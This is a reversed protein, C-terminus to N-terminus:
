ARVVPLPVVTVMKCVILELRPAPCLSNVLERRQKEEGGCDATGGWLEDLEGRESDLAM